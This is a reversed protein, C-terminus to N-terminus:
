IHTYFFVRPMASWTLYYPHTAPDAKITFEDLWWLLDFWNRIAFPRCEVLGPAYARCIADQARAAATHNNFFAINSISQQGVRWWLVHVAKFGQANRPMHTHM